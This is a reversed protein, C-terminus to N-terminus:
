SSQREIETAERFVRIKKWLPNLRPLINIELAERSVRGTLTQPVVAGRSEKSSMRLCSREVGVLSSIDPPKRHWPEMSIVFMVLYPLSVATELRHVGVRSSYLQLLIETQVDGAIDKLSIKFWICSFNQM